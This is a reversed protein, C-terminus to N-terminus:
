ASGLQGWMADWGVDIGVGVVASALAALAVAARARREPARAAARGLLVVPVFCCPIVALPYGYAYAVQRLRTGFDGHARFSLRWAFPLGIAAACRPPM